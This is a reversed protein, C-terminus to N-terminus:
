LWVIPNLLSEFELSGSELAWVREVWSFSVKFVAYPRPGAPGRQTRGTGGEPWCTFQWKLLCLGKKPQNGDMKLPGAATTERGGQPNALSNRQM